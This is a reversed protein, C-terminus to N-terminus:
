WRWTKLILEAEQLRKEIASHVKESYKAFMGDFGAADLYMSFTEEFENKNAKKLNDQYKKIEEFNILGEDIVDKDGNVLVLNNILLLFLWISHM